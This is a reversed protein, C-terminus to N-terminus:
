LIPARMGEFTEGLRYRDPADHRLAMGFAAEGRSLGPFGHREDPPVFFHSQQQAGPLAAARAPALDHEDLALRADALRPQQFSQPLRGPLAWM